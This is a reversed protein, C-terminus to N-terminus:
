FLRPIVDTSISISRRMCAIHVVMHVSVQAEQRDPIRVNLLVPHKGKASGKWGNITQNIATDYLIIYCASGTREPSGHTQLLTFAAGIDLLRAVVSPAYVDVVELPLTTWRPGVTVKARKFYEITSKRGALILRNCLFREENVFFHM